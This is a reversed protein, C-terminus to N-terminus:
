KSRRSKKPALTKEIAKLRANTSRIENLTQVDTAVEDKIEQETKDILRKEGKIGSIIIENGIFNSVFLGVTLLLLSGVAISLPGDWWLPLGESTSSLLNPSAFFCIMLFDVTHWIGRWFIVVGTGGIFAYIIPYHSLRGRAIDELRDGFHNLKNLLM